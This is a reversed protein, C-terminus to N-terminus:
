GLQYVNRCLNPFYGVPAGLGRLETLLLAISQGVQPERLGHPNGCSLGLHQALDQADDISGDRGEEDLFGSEGHGGAGSFESLKEVGDAFTDGADTARDAFGSRCCDAGAPTIPKKRKECAPNASGPVM